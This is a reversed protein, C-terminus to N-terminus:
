RPAALDMTRYRGYSSTGPAGQVCSVGIDKYQANMINACCGPSALWGQMVANVDAYGATINEAAISIRYGAATLRTDFSSGEASSHSFYNKQVIEISHGAAAAFM